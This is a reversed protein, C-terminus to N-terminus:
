RRRSTSILIYDIGRDLTFWSFADPYKAQLWPCALFFFLNFLITLVVNLVKITAFRIPRQKFRLNAFPISGLVDICLILVMM